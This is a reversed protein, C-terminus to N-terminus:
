FPLSSRARRERADERDQADLEAAEAWERSAAVMAELDQAALAKEYRLALQPWRLFTGRRRMRLTDGNRELLAALLADAEDSMGARLFGEVIGLSTKLEVDLVAIAADHFAQAHSRFGDSGVRALLNMAKDSSNHRDALHPIMRAALKAFTPETGLTYSLSQIDSRIFIPDIGMAVEVLYRRTAGSAEGFLDVMGALIRVCKALFQDENSQVRYYHILNLIARAATPRFQEPIISRRFADVATKHVIVYQDWLLASFAEFLLEPINARSRFPLEGVATAAYSRVLASPGVLAAYLHPLLLKLGALDRSLEKTAGLLAGRLNDRGEPITDFMGIIKAVSADDGAAAVSAWEVFAEMLGRMTSRRNSREMVMLVNDTPAGKEAQLETLRDDLLLLAGIFADLHSRVVLALGDSGSRFASVVEQLVDDDREMTPAWILRNLALSHRLSAADVPPENYGVHAALAYVKMVRLRHGSPAGENLSQLLADVEHPMADFADNVADALDPLRDDEDELDGVLSPARVYVSLLTRLIPAAVKADSARLVHLGRGARELATRRGSLLFQEVTTVVETPFREYLAALFALDRSIRPEGDGYFFGRNDPDALDIAAALIDPAVKAAVRDLRPLLKEVAIRDPYGHRLVAVALDVIKSDNGGVADLIILAAPTFWSQATALTFVYGVLEPTFFEPALRASQTVREFNEKSPDADFLGIDDLLTRAVPGLRPLLAARM